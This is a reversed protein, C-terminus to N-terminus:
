ASIIDQHGPLSHFVHVMFATAIVPTLFNIIPITLLFTLMIGAVMIKGRSQRRMNLAAAPEMRRLAVLEFFERSVLYSNLIYYLILNLPPIFMLILYMPLFLINLGIVMLAFRTTSAVIESVLQPRAPPKNPYYKAEVATVVDELFFGVIITSAGPFLIASVIILSLGVVFAAIWDLVNELWGWLSLSALDVTSSFIWWVLVNLLIFVVASGTIGILLVRRLVPDGLQSLAKSLYGFM